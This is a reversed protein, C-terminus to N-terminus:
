REVRTDLDKKDKAEITVRQNQLVMSYKNTM